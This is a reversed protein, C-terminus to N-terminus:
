RETMYVKPGRVFEALMEPHRLLVAQVCNRHALFTRACTSSACSRRSRAARPRDSSSRAPSIRHTRIPRSLDRLARWRQRYKYNNFYQRRRPAPQVLYKQLNLRRQQYAGAPIESDTARTLQYAGICRCALRNVSWWDSNFLIRHHNIEYNRANSVDIEIFM